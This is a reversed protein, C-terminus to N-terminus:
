PINDVEIWEWSGSNSKLLDTSQLIGTWFFLIAVLFCHWKLRYINYALVSIRFFVANAKFQGCPM